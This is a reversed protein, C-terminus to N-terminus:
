RTDGRDLLGVARLSGSLRTALTRGYFCCVLIRSRASFTSCGMNFSRSGGIVLLGAAELARRFSEAVWTSQAIGFDALWGRLTLSASM